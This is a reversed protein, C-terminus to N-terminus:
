RPEDAGGPRHGALRLAHPYGRTATEGDARHPDASPARYLTAVDFPRITGLELGREDCWIFFTGCARSYATRMNPNRINATFFDIYRWAAAEGADAILAPVLEAPSAPLLTRDATAGGRLNSPLGPKFIV